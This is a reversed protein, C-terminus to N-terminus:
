NHINLSPEQLGSKGFQNGEFQNYSGTSKGVPNAYEEM